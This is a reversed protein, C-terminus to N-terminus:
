VQRDRNNSDRRENRDERIERILVTININMDKLESIISTSRLFEIREKDFEKHEDIIILRYTIGCVILGLIAIIASAIKTIEDTSTFEITMGVVLGTTGITM